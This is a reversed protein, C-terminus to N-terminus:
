VPAAPARQGSPTVVTVPVGLAEIRDPLGDRLWRSGWPALTSVIVEDYDREGLEAAVADFPESGRALRGEVPAGTARTFLRVAHRLLWDGPRGPPADPVLLFFACDGDEARSRLQAMLAPTAVSRNAVVLIRTSVPGM